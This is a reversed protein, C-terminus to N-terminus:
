STSTHQEEHSEEHTFSHNLATFILYIFFDRTFLKWILQKLTINM